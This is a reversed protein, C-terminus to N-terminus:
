AQAQGETAVTNIQGIIYEAAKVAGSGREKVLDALAKAKQRAGAATEGFLCWSMSAALEQAAWQPNSNRSGWRGIGHLEARQAYDFCDTWPPLVVQPLGSIVAENFSNAGGHHVSCVIHGSQLISLPEPIFWKEIRVRDAEMEAGLIDYMACKPDKIDYDGYKRLKWIVQLGAMDENGAEGARRLVAKVAAAMELAQDEDTLLLSGLNIYLTPARALWAALEPDTERIPEWRGVIPGLPHIHDHIVLPYDLEPMSAVLIQMGPIRNQILDAATYMKIGSSSELHQEVAKRHPDTKFVAAAWLTYIINVPKQFFPIPYSYGSFIAPFKWLVAAQPQLSAVFEKISNPSLIVMSIKSHMAATLGVTMVSNVVLFDPKVGNIIRLVDLVIEEMAPGSMPVFIPMCDRIAQLTNGFSPKNLFTLPLYGPKTKINRSALLTLMELCSASREIRHYVVPLAKSILEEVGAYTAIHVEVDSTTELIAQATAITVGIEGRDSNSLFMVKRRPATATPTAM